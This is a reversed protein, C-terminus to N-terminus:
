NSAIRYRVVASAYANGPAGTKSGAYLYMILGGSHSGNVNAETRTWTNAAHGSTNFSMMLSADRYLEFTWYNSVNNTTAVYSVVSCRTLYVIFDGRFPALAVTTGGSTLPMAAQSALAIEVEHVSLWRVGDYRFLWGLDTRFCLDGTVASPFSTGQQVGHKNLWLLNNSVYTNMDAATVLQGAFFDYPSAWVSSVAM